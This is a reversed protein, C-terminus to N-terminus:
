EPEVQLLNEGPDSLGANRRPITVIDFYGPKPLLNGFRQVLPRQLFPQILGHLALRRLPRALRQLSAPVPPLLPPCFASHLLCNWLARDARGGPQGSLAPSSCQRSLKTIRDPRTLALFPDYEEPYCNREAPPASKLALCTGISKVMLDRDRRRPRSRVPGTRAEGAKRGAHPEATRATLITTPIGSRRSKLLSIIM